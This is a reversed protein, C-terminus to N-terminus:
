VVLAAADVHEQGDICLGLNDDYLQGFADLLQHGFTELPLIAGLHELAQLDRIPVQVIYPQLARLAERAKGGRAIADVVAQARAAGDGWPVAVPHMFGDDILRVVAGVTAFNLDARAAMVGSADHDQTQYYARFYQTFHEQDTISLAQGHEGLMRRTVALPAKAGPPPESEALFVVFEGRTPQGHEDTLLGERNCRGAAQAMSDLGGLARYVVPFDVDVGAEVLQTAVVRCVANPTALRTKIESLRKSRHAACMLASLHFCPESPISENLLKALRRADKRSHVIALVRPHAGLERALVECSLPSAGPEPWRVAVRDIARALEAPRAIIERVDELGDPLADRRSLSPQTATSLVISCSYHDVLQRMGDLLCHLFRPPLTQAEDIIIVSSAVNHLKRCRSPHDSFLTEFFQVTTTVIIPADWNEAAMKRRVERESAEETDGDQEVASHHEIVENDGLFQRFVSATQEIISTYPIVVIVRRLDYREAHHLAFALSSLTKGGGTPVTLSFLGPTWKAAEVCQRLVDARLRNVDSDARFESLRVDLRERLSHISAFRRMAIRRDPQYFAETALRDADVLSSFVFRTWLEIAYKSTEGTQVRALFEPLPPVPAGAIGAPLVTRIQELVRKGAAVSEGLPRRSTEGRALRNGLGAHHGAIAFALPAAGRDIALAAGAAAHEAREGSGAIRRQFEERYKGVDHWLGALFGWDGSDFVAAFERALSAVRRLHDELPEWTERNSDSRSHAFFDREM